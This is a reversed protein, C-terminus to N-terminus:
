WLLQASAAVQYMRYPTPRPADVMWADLGIGIQRAIWRKASVGASWSARATESLGAGARLWASIDTNGSYWGRRLGFFVLEYAPSPSWYRPDEPDARRAFLGTFWELRWPLPQWAPTVQLEGEYIRNGDSIDYGDVRLRIAGALPRAEAVLGIANATLGANFAAASLALRGWDVRGARVRLHGQWPEVQLNGFFKDDYLLGELRPALPVRPAWVAAQVGQRTANLEPARYHDEFAGAELRWARDASWHRYTLWTEDRTFDQNDASRVLRLGVGPALERRAAELGSRAEDNGPARELAARYDSEALDPRGTWLLISAMGIRADADYASGALARYRDVAADYRGTWSLSNAVALGLAPADAGQRQAELGLRAAGYYDGAEYRELAPAALRDRRVQQLPEDLPKVPARPDLVGAPAAPPEIQPPQAPALLSWVSLAACLAVRRTANV